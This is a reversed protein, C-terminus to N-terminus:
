NPVPVTVATLVFGDAIRFRGTFATLPTDAGALVPGPVLLRAHFTGAPDFRLDAESFDLWREALPFWAKYVSEKASFLLRDWAVRPSGATLAALHDREAPLSVADLVGEPLPAHPEADVGIAALVDAHALAAARYGECHTMSGVVGDPWIPRGRAGTLVAVPPYGLQALATRACHRVTAFERRRKEVAGAVLAAEGPFLAVEPDDHTEVVAVEPPLIEELM